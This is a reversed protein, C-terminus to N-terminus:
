HSEGQHLAYSNIVEVRRPATYVRRFIVEYITVELSARALLNRKVLRIGPLNSCDLSLKISASKPHPNILLSKLIFSRM